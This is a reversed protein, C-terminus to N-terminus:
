NAHANKKYVDESYPQNTVLCTYLVAIMKKGLKRYRTASGDGREKLTALYKRQWPANVESLCALARSWLYATHRAKSNCSRRKSVTTKVPRRRSEKGGDHGGSSATTPSQGFYACAEAKSAFNKCPDKGFYAAM